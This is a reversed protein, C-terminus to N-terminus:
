WKKNQSSVNALFSLKVRNNFTTLNNKEREYAIRAAEKENYTFKSNFLTKRYQIGTWLAMLANEPVVNNSFCSKGNTQYVLLLFERGPRMKRLYIKTECESMAAQGVPHFSPDGLFTECRKKCCSLGANLYVGCNETLLKNNDASNQVCGCKRIALTCKKETFKETVITYNGFATGIDYDSSFDEAYDGSDGKRDNYRKVPVERYEVVDGDPKVTIWKKEFYDQGNATFMLKTTMTSQEVEDCVDECGCKKKTPKQEVHFLRNFYLPVPNGCDDEDNLSHITAADEPVEVFKGDEDELIPLWVSKVLNLTHTTIEPWVLGAIALQPLFFKKKDVGSQILMLDLAEALTYKYAM